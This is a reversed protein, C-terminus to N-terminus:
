SNRAPTCLPHLERYLRKLAELRHRGDAELYKQLELSDVRTKAAILEIPFRAPNTAEYAIPCEISM